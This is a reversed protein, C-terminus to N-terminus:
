IILPDSISCLITNERCLHVIPLTCRPMCTKLRNLAELASSIIIVDTLLDVNTAPINKMNQYRKLCKPCIPCKDGNPCRYNVRQSNWLLYDIFWDREVAAMIRAAPLELRIPPPCWLNSNGSSSRGTSACTISAVSAECARGM